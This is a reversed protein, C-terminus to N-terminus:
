KAIPTLGAAFRKANQIYIDASVKIMAIQESTLQRVVRAPSGVILVGEPFSKGETVLAGAGVISNKGITAGNLITAGMGILSNNGITCGHLMAKHGVTVGKGVTCPMGPDCHLVSHDQINTGEGITIPDNDGRITVGFWISAETALSVNGIVNADPAVWVTDDAVTPAQDDLQYLM